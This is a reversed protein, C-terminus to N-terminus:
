RMHKNLVPFPRQGPKRSPHYKEEEERADKDIAVEVQKAVEEFYLIQHYRNTEVAAKTIIVKEEVKCARESKKRAESGKYGLGFVKKRTEKLQEPKCLKWVTLTQQLQRSSLYEVGPNKSLCKRLAIVHLRVA